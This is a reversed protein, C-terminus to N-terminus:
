DVVKPIVYCDNESVTNALLQEATATKVAKDERLQAYGVANDALLPDYEGSFETVNEIFSILNNLDATIIAEEQETFDIKSLESLKDFTQKNITM